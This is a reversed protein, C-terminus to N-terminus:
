IYWLFLHINLIVLTVYQCADKSNGRHCPLPNMESALWVLAICQDFVNVPDKCVLVPGSFLLKEFRMENGLEEGRQTCLRGFLTMSVHLSFFVVLIGLGFDDRGHESVMDGLAVHGCNELMELSPSGVMERLLQSWHM